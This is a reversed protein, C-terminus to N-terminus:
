GATTYVQTRVWLARLPGCVNTWKEGPARRKVQARFKGKVRHVGSPRGTSEEKASCKECSLELRKARAARLTRLESVEEYDDAAAEPDTRGPGVVEM